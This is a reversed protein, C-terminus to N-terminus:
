DELFGIESLTDKIEIFAEYSFKKRALCFAADTVVKCPMESGSEAAFFGDLEVQLAGKVMNLM